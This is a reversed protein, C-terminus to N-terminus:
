KYYIVNLIINNRKTSGLFSLFKTKGRGRFVITDGENVIKTPKDVIVGNISILNSALASKSKERSLGYVSSIYNDIRPSSIIINKTEISPEPIILEYHSQLKKTEIGSRGVKNLNEIIFKSISDICIIDSSKNGVLIDGILNRNINLGMISGLIDSHAIKNFNLYSIRIYSLVEYEKINNSIEDESMYEPLIYCIKRTADEYGGWFFINPADKQSALKYVLDIQTPNLFKTYQLYNENKVRLFKDYINSLLIRDDDDNTLHKIIDKNMYTYYCKIFFFLVVQM